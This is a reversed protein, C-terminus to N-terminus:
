KAKLSTYMFILTSGKLPSNGKFKFNISLYHMLIHQVLKNQYYTYNINPFITLFIHTHLILLCIIRSHVWLPLQFPGIFYHRDAWGDMWGDM